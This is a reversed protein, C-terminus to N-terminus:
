TYSCQLSSKNSASLSLLKQSMQIHGSHMTHMPIDVNYLSHRAYSSVTEESCKLSSKRGHYHLWPDSRMWTGRLEREAVVVTDTALWSLPSSSQFCVTKHHGAIAISHNYKCTASYFKNVERQTLFAVFHDWYPARLETLVTRMLRCTKRWSHLQHSPQHFYSQRHWNLQLGGLPSVVHFVALPRMVSSRVSQLLQLGGDTLHCMCVYDSDQICVCLCKWM